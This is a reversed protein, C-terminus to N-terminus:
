VYNTAYESKKLKGIKRVDNISYVVQKLISGKNYGWNGCTNTM